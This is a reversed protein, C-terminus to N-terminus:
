KVEEKKIVKFNKGRSMPKTQEIVVIDGDKLDMGNTDAKLRKTVNILKGYLKHAVKRHIAVVVTKQMKTSVDTGTLTKGKTKVTPKSEKKVEAKVAPKAVGWYHDCVWGGGAAFFIQGGTIPFLPDRTWFM